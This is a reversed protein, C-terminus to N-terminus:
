VKGEKTFMKPMAVYVDHDLPAQLFASTYDIQKNELDLIITMILIVRVTM